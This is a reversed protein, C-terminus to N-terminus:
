KGQQSHLLGRRVAYQVLEAQNHLGLKRMLNSRHTEATRPSITLREAIQASTLGEAALHLVERERATLGVYPDVVAAEDRRMYEEIVSDSMPRSLYRQGEGARRVATVLESSHVGKLVYGMVGARLAELVYGENDYMSLVVVRTSPSAKAVRRAVDLGHLGPMVLDLVLIDPRLREVTEVAALGDGCESLVQFGQKELITRIGHRVVQHDDAIVVSPM